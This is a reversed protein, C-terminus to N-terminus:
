EDSGLPLRLSLGNKKENILNIYKPMIDIGISHRDLEYAAFLTTGSGAFPDLVTDGPKTFLKIFFDPIKRPFTGPHPTNVGGITTEIVNHATAKDFDFQNDTTGFNSGNTRVRRPGNSFGSLNNTRKGRGNPDPDRKKRHGIVIGSGNKSGWTVRDRIKGAYKWKADVAVADHYIALDTTKAFHYLHEWADRVRLKHLGPIPNIKRWIYEEIWLWGADIMDLVLRLVYPHRQGDECHEWINLIFSGKPNLVRMMQEARPIFWDSYQGPTIGGYQKMRRDAYPPSTVILDVSDNPISELVNLCDGQYVEFKLNSM